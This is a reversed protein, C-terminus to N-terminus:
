TRAFRTAGATEGRWTALIPGIGKGNMLTRRQARNLEIGGRIGMRAALAQLETAGAALRQKRKLRVRRSTNM